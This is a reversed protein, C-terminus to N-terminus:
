LPHATCPFMTLAAGHSDYTRARSEEVRKHFHRHAVANNPCAAPQFSLAKTKRQRHNSDVVEENKLGQRFLRPKKKAKTTSSGKNHTYVTRM